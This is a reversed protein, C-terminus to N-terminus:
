AFYKEYANGTELHLSWQDWMAKEIWPKEKSYVNTSKVLTVRVPWHGRVPVGTFLETDEDTTLSYNYRNIFNGYCICVDIVSQGNVSVFTPESNNLKSNTPVLSLVEKGPENCKQYGWCYHRATCDGLFFVREIHIKDAYPICSEILEDKEEPKTYATTTLIKRGHINAASLVTNSDKAELSKMQAYAVNYRFLLTVGGSVKNSISSLATYTILANETVEKKTEYGFIVDLIPKELYADIARKCHNSLACINIQSFSVRRESHITVDM